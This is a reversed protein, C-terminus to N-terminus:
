IGLYFRMQTPNRLWRSRPYRFIWPGPISFEESVSTILIVSVTIVILYSLYDYHVGFFFLLSIWFLGVTWFAIAVPPDLFIAIVLYGLPLVDNCNSLSLSPLLATVLWFLRCVFCMCVLSSFLCAPCPYYGMSHLHWIFAVFRFRILFILFVFILLPATCFVILLELLLLFGFFLSLNKISM